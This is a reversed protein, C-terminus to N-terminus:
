NPQHPHGFRNPSKSGGKNFAHGHKMGGKPDKSPRQDRVKITKTKKTPMDEKKTTTSTIHSWEGSEVDTQM